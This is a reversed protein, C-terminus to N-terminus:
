EGPALFPLEGRVEDDSDSDSNSQHSKKSGSSLAITCFGDSAFCSLGGLNKSSKRSRRHDPELHLIRFQFRRRKSGGDSPGKRPEGEEEIM